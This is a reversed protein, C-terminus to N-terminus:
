LLMVLTICTDLFPPFENSGTCTGAIVGSLTPSMIFCCFNNYAFSSNETICHLIILNSVDTAKM